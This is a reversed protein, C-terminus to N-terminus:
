KANVTVTVTKSLAKFATAGAATVKVKIQYKGKKTKKKVTVKGTKANLKLAKKSKANGGVVKYTVKGKASTVKLPTVTLAKKKLTKVKVTKATAKVKMPNAKKALMPINTVVKNAKFASNAFAATYTTQGKATYTAARTIKATTNATEMEIGSNGCKRSCERKATVTSNDEAWTYTPTGWDHGLAKVSGEKPEVSFAPNKFTASFTGEGAETCTPAATVDVTTQAVETETCGAETNNRCVRRATVTNNDAAWEYTPENWNHAIAEVPGKETQTTFLENDFAATFTKEGESTCTPDKTVKSTTNVTKTVTCGPETRHSCVREATVTSNDETWTYTPAGWDHGLAKLTVDKPEVSFEPDNFSASYTGHGDETCTPNTGEYTTDVTELEETINCNPAECVRIATVRSNDQEWIYDPGIWVHTHNGDGAPAILYMYDCDVGDDDKYTVTYYWAEVGLAAAIAAISEGDPCLVSVWGGARAAKAKAETAFADADSVNKQDYYFGGKYYYTGLVSNNYQGSINYLWEKAQEADATYEHHSEEFIDMPMGFYAYSYGEEGHDDWTLDMYLYQETAQDYVANWAHGAGGGPGGAGATGVIYYNPIGLYNMILAFADAYGECVAKKHDPSFVGHVSHAWKEEEPTSGDEEYAYDIDNVIKDHVLAIKDLTDTGTAALDEYAKVSDIVLTNLIRRASVGAYEKETCPYVANENYLVENSLWYYAPHDYDYACFAKLANQTRAASTSGTIGIRYYNVAKIIYRDVDEGGLTVETPQLDKEANLFEIVAADIARYLKQQNSDLANYGVSSAGKTFVSDPDSNIRTKSSKIEDSSDSGNVVIDTPVYIPEAPAWGGVPLDPEEMEVPQVLLEGDTEEAFAAGAFVFIFFASIITLVSIKSITKLM